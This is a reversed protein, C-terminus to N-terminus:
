TGVFHSERFGKINCISKDKSLLSSLKLTMDAPPHHFNSGFEM